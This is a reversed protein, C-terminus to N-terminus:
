SGPQQASAGSKSAGTKPKKKKLPKDLAVWVQEKYARHADPRNPNDRKFQKIGMVLPIRGTYRIRALTSLQKAKLQEEKYDTKKSM